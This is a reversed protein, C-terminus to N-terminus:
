NLNLYPQPHSIQDQYKNFILTFHMKFLHMGTNINNLHYLHLGVDCFVLNMTDGQPSSATSSENHYLTSTSVKQFHSQVNRTRTRQGHPVSPDRYLPHTQWSLLCTNWPSLMLSRDRTGKLINPQSRRTKRYLCLGSLCCNLFSSFFLKLFPYSYKFMLTSLCPSFRWSSAAQLWAIIWWCDTRQGEARSTM